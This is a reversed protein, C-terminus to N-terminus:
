VTAFTKPVQLCHVEVNDPDYSAVPVVIDLIVLVIFILFKM